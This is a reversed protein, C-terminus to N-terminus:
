LAVNLDLREASQFDFSKLEWELDEFDCSCRCYARTQVGGGRAAECTEYPAVALQVLESLGELAGAVPVALDDSDNSLRANALGTQVPLEGVGIARLAPQDDFATRNGLAFRCRKQRDDLQEPDIKLDLRSVLRPLNALLDRALQQRQIARELGRKWCKEPKQINRDLIGLPM